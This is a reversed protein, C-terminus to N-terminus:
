DYKQSYGFGSKRHVKFYLTQRRGWVSLIKHLRERASFSCLERWKYFIVTQQSNWKLIRYIFTGIAPEIFGNVGHGTTYVLM